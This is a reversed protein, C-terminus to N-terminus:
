IKNREVSATKFELITDLFTQLNSACAHKLWGCTSAYREKTILEHKFRRIIRRATKKRVLVYKGFSRYGCFDVGQKTNFIQAKSFKLELEQWLFKEIKNLANKLEEKSNSFLMFDDCYREYAGIKLTHLVFNDLFSLYYNGFWQSCFNGIPCNYGGKYSFIIDDVIKMFKYDKIIRHLKNSLIRQNISPYFKRIDCKLCYKYKRVYESCKNVARMQGRNEICAYCNETLLNTFIPKLINMVAHQVIRDQFPLIFIEREKPEYIKKVRYPSTTYLGNLVRQRLNELNEDENAMFQKVQAQSKKGLKANHYALKFNDESIFNDYLNKYTKM